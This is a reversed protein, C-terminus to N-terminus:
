AFYQNILQMLKQSRHHYSHIKARKRAQNRIQEAEYIPMKMIQDIKKLLETADDYYFAEKGERFFNHQEKTHVSLMVGGCSPIEFSRMNHSKFNHTRLLNLQIRYDALKRFYKEGYVSPFLNLKKTPSLYKKWNEGYIDIEYGLDLIAKIVSARHEDGYGLFCIKKIDNSQHSIEDFYTPYGFPLVEVTAHPYSLNMEKKIQYSYTIHLDYLPISNKVNDNGSAKTFYQFPHDPNYNILFVGRSKLKQLTKPVIEMGKFIVVMDPQYKKVDRLLSTNCLFYILSPFLKFVIKGTLSKQFFATIDFFYSSKVDVGSKQLEDVYQPALLHKNKTNSFLLKM